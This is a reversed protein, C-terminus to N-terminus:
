TNINTIGVQVLHEHHHDSRRAGVQQVGADGGDHDVDPDVDQDDDHNVDHDDHDDDHDDHDVDHHHDDNTIVEVLAQIAERGEDSEEGGILVRDPCELDQM